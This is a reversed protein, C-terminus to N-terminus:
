LILRLLVELGENHKTTFPLVPLVALLVSNQRTKAEVLLLIQIGVAAPDLVSVGAQTCVYGLRSSAELLKLM